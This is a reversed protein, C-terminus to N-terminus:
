VIGPRALESGGAPCFGVALGNNVLDHAAPRDLRKAIGISCGSSSWSAGEASPAQYGSVEPWDAAGHLQDLDELGDRGLREVGLFVRWMPPTMPEVSARNGM